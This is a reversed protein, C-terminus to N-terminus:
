FISISRSPSSSPQALDLLAPWIQRDDHHRGMTILLTAPPRFLIASESSQLFLDAVDMEDDVALISVSM